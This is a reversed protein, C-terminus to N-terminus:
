YATLRGQLETSLTLMERFTVPYDCVPLCSQVECQVTGLRSWAEKVCSSQGVHALGARDRLYGARARETEQLVQRQESM